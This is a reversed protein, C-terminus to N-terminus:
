SVEEVQEIVSERFEQDCDAAECSACMLEEACVTVFKAENFAVTMPVEEEIVIEIGPVVVIFTNDNFTSPFVPYNSLLLCAIQFNNNGFTFAGNGLFLYGIAQQLAM